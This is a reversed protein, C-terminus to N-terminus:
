RWDTDINTARCFQVSLIALLTCPLQERRLSVVKHYGSRLKPLKSTDSVPGATNCPMMSQCCVETKGDKLKKDMGERLGPQLGNPLLM